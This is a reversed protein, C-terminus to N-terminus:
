ILILFSCKSHLHFFIGGYQLTLGYHKSLKWKLIDTDYLCDIQKVSDQIGLFTEVNASTCKCKSTDNVIWEENVEFQTPIIMFNSSVDWSNYNYNLKWFNDTRIMKDPSLFDGQMWYGIDFNTSKKACTDKSFYKGHNFYITESGNSFSSDFHVYEAQPSYTTIDRTGYFYKMNPVFPQWYQAVASIALFCNFCIITLIERIM